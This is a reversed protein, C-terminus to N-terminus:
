TWTMNLVLRISAASHICKRSCQNFKILPGLFIIQNKGRIPIYFACLFCDANEFVTISKQEPPHLEITSRFSGLSLVLTRNGEGAGFNFPRKEAKKNQIDTLPILVRASPENVCAFSLHVGFLTLRDSHLSSSPCGGRAKGEGAGFFERFPLKKVESM